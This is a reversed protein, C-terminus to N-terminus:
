LTAKEFQNWIEQAVLGLPRGRKKSLFVGIPEGTPLGEVEIKILDGCTLENQIFHTPLSGWGMGAIIIEKKTQADTVFWQRGGKITNFQEPKPEISSDRIVIQAQDKMEALSFIRNPNKLPFQKGVVVQMTLESVKLHDFAQHNVPWIIFALDVEERALKDGGGSLYQSVLTFQTHCYRQEFSKLVLLIPQMPILPDFTVQVETEYGSALYKGLNAFEEAQNLLIEAKKLLGLGAPTLSVRYEKRSFLLLGLEGELKKLAVSLTPQTRNLKKAAAGLSGTQAITAFILIQDLTM